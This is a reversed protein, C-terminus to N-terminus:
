FRHVGEDCVEEGGVWQVLRAKSVLQELVNPVGPGPYSVKDYYKAGNGFDCLTYALNRGSLASVLPEGPTHAFRLDKMGKWEYVNDITIKDLAFLDADKLFRLMGVDPGTAVHGRPVSNADQPHRADHGFHIEELQCQDVNDAIQKMYLGVEDELMTLRKLNPASAILNAFRDGEPHSCMRVTLSIRYPWGPGSGRPQFLAQIIASEHARQPEAEGDIFGRDLNYRNIDLSTVPLKSNRIFPM